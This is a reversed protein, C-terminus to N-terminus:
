SLEKLKILYKQTEKPLKHYNELADGIKGIRVPGANFSAAKNEDTSKLKYHPLYHKGIREHLYWKGITM